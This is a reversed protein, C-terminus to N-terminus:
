LLFKVAECARLETYMAELQERSTAVFTATVAVYNGKRSKNTRFEITTGDELHKALSANLAELLADDNDGIVKMPVRQPYKLAENEPENM